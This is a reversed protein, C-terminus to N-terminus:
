IVQYGATRLMQIMSRQWTADDTKELTAIHKEWIGILTANDSLLTRQYIIRGVRQGQNNEIRLRYCSYESCVDPRTRHITCFAISKTTDMRFFPCAQPRTEFITTDCFLGKKDPDVRVDYLVNTYRNLLTFSWEDQSDTIEYM